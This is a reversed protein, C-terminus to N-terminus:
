PHQGKRYTAKSISVQGGGAPQRTSDTILDGNEVRYVDTLTGLATGDATAVTSALVLAGDKWSAKTRFQVPGRQNVSETGDLKYTSTHTAERGGSEVLRDIKIETPSQTITLSVTKPPPPPSVATSSPPAPPAPPAPAAPSGLIKWTGALNPRTQAIGIVGLVVFMLAAVVARKM